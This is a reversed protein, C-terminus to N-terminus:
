GKEYKGLIYNEQVLHVKFDEIEFERIMYTEVLIKDGKDFPTKCDAAKTVIEAEIIPSGEEIYDEPILVPSKSKQEEEEKPFIQVFRNTPTFKIRGLQSTYIVSM